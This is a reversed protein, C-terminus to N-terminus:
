LQQNVKSLTEGAGEVDKDGGKNQRRRRVRHTGHCFAGAGKKTASLRISYLACGRHSIILVRLSTLM